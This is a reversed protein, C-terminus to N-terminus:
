SPMQRYGMISRSHSVPLHGRGPIGHRRAEYVKGRLRASGVPVGRVATARKLLSCRAPIVDTYENAYPLASSSIERGRSQSHLTAALGASRRRQGHQTVSARHTSKVLPAHNNKSSGRFETLE